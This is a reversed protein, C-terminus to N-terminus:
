CFTQKNKNCIYSASGESQQKTENYVSWLWDTTDAGTHRTSLGAVSLTHGPVSHRRVGSSSLGPDGCASYLTKCRKFLKRVSGRTRVLRSLPLSLVRMNRSQGASADNEGSFRKLSSRTHSVSGGGANGFYINVANLGDKHFSEGM